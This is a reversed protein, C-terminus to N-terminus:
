RAQLRAAMALLFRAGPGSGLHVTGTDRMPREVPRADIPIVLPAPAAAIGAAAAPDAKALSRERRDLVIGESLTSKQKPTSPTAQAKASPSWPSGPIPGTSAAAASDDKDPAPKPASKPASFPMTRGKLEVLRVAKTAGESDDVTDEPCDVDPWGIPEGRISVGVAVLVHEESDRLEIRGRWTLSICEQEADIRLTDASLPIEVADGLEDLRRASARLEPLQLQISGGGRWLGELFISEDGRFHGPARQDPPAAFFFAQNFGEPLSMEKNNRLGRKDEPRLLQARMPWTYSIPGMAGPFKPATAHMIPADARGIPNFADGLGGYANEYIVPVQGLAAGSPPFRVVIRKDVVVVGASVVTLRAPSRTDSPGYADGFFLVQGRDLVLALDSCDQLSSSPNSHRHLDRAYVPNGPLCRMRGGESVGLTAKVVVTVFHDGASRWSQAACQAFKGPLLRVSPM